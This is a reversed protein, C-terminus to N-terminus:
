LLGMHRLEDALSVPESPPAPAAPPPRDSGPAQHSRCRLCRSRIRPSFAEASATDDFVAAEDPNDTWLVTVGGSPREEVRVFYSSPVAHGFFDAAFGECVILVRSSDQGLSSQSSAPASLQAECHPEPRGSLSSDLNVKRIPRTPRLGVPM